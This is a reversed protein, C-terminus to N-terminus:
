KSLAGGRLFPELHRMFHNRLQEYYQTENKGLEGKLLDGLDPRGSGEQISLVSGFTVHLIQRIDFNDLLGPLDEDILDSVAPVRSTEASVHYSSRDTGYQGLSFVLIQRFLRPNTHAVTRLAELYSTGATKLHFLNGLIEAAVPYISFKDSGSHLSIKYPGLQRAIEAHQRLEVALGALNGIYDVGKEFRGSFRPALSTWRVGMRRLECALLFHDLPSTPTETEDISIEFDFRGEGLKGVLHRYIKKVQVLAATYMVLFRFLREANIHLELSALRVRQDLYMKEINFQTTEMESWPLSPIQMRLYGQTANRAYQDIKGGPDVTFFSFGELACLDADQITKIHDADAGVAELWGGQFAGWTADDLVQRPTRHTRNMERISQQAFIPAIGTGAAAMVHGPTALGLRDGFGVSASIGLPVPTLNPFTSRLACGNEPTLRCTKLYLAAGASSFPVVEGAFNEGSSAQRSVIFLAKEAERGGMFFLADGDWRFSKPYVPFPRIATIIQDISPRFNSNQM